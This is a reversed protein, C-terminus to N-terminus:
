KACDNIASVRSSKGISVRYHFRSSKARYDGISAICAKSHISYILSFTKFTFSPGLCQLLTGNNKLILLKDTLSQPSGPVGALPLVMPSVNVNPDIIFWVQLIPNTILGM